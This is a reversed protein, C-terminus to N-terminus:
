LRRRNGDEVSDSRAKCRKPRGTPLLPAHLFHLWIEIPISDKQDSHQHERQTYEWSPASSKDSSSAENPRNVSACLEQVGFVHVAPAFAPCPARRHHERTTSARKGEARRRKSRNTLKRYRSQMLIRAEGVSRSPVPDREEVNHRKAHNMRILCSMIVRM